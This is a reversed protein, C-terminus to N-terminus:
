VEDGLAKAIARRASVVPACTPCQDMQTVIGDHCYGDPRGGPHTRVLAICARLLDSAARPNVEPLLIDQIARDYDYLWYEGKEPAIAVWGREDYYDGDPDKVSELFVLRFGDRPEHAALVADASSELQKADNPHGTWEACPIWGRKRGRRVIGSLGPLHHLTRDKQRARVSESPVYLDM